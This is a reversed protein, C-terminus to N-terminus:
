LNLFICEMLPIVPFMVMWFPFNVVAFDFDDRKDYFKSLFFVVSLSNFISLHLDLFPAENDSPLKQSLSAHGTLRAHKQMSDIQINITIEQKSQSQSQIKRTM